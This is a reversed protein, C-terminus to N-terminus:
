NNVNWYFFNLGATWVPLQVPAYVPTWTTGDNSGLVTFQQPTRYLYLSQDQRGCMAFIALATGKNYQVQIWEGRLTGTTATTSASYSTYQGNTSSYMGNAGSDNSHWYTNIDRNFAMDPTYPAVM